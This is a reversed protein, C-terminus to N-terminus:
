QNPELYYLFGTEIFYCPWQIANTRFHNDYDCKNSIFRCYETPAAYVIHRENSIIFYNDFCEFKYTKDDLHLSKHYIDPRKLIRYAEDKWKSGVTVMQTPNPTDKTPTSFVVPPGSPLVTRPNFVLNKYHIDSTDFQHINTYSYNPTLVLDLTSKVTVDYFKTEHFGDNQHVLIMKNRDTIPFLIANFDNCPINTKVPLPKCHNEIYFLGSSTLIYDNYVSKVNDEIIMVDFFQALANVITSM